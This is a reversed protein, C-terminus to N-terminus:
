REVLAAPLEADFLPNGTRRVYDTLSRPMAQVRFDEDREDVHFPFFYRDGREDYLAVYFNGVSILKQLDGHIASVLEELNSSKGTASSINLLVSQVMQSRKADSVDQAVVFSGCFEGRRDYRPSSWVELTRLGRHPTPVQLEYASSRGQRRLERQALM